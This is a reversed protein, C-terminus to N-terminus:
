TGSFDDCDYYDYDCCILFLFVSLMNISIILILYCSQKLFLCIMKLVRGGMELLIKEEIELKASM